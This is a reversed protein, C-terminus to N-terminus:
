FALRPVFGTQRAHRPLSSDSGSSTSPLSSDSLYEHSNVLHSQTMHNCVEFIM